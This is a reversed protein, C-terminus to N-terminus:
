KKNNVTHKVQQQNNHTPTSKGASAETTATTTAMKKTTTTKPSFHSLLTYLYYENHYCKRGHWAIEVQVKNNNM